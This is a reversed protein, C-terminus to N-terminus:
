MGVHRERPIDPYQCSIGLASGRWIFMAHICETCNYGHSKCVKKREREPKRDIWWAIGACIGVLIMMPFDFM